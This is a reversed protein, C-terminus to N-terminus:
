LHDVLLTEQVLSPRSKFAKKMVVLGWGYWQNTPWVQRCALFPTIKHWACCLFTPFAFTHRSVHERRRAFRSYRSLRVPKSELSCPDLFEFYSYPSVSFKAYLVTLRSLTYDRKSCGFGQGVRGFLSPGNRARALWAEIADVDNKTSCAAVAQMGSASIRWIEVVTLRSVWVRTMFERASLFSDSLVTHWPM